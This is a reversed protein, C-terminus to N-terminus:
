LRLPYRIKCDPVGVQVVSANPTVDQVHYKLENGYVEALLYGAFLSTVLLTLGFLYKEIMYELILDMKTLTPDKNRTDM